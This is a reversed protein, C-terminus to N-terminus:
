GEEKPRSVDVKPLGGHQKGPRRAVNAKARCTPSCCTGKPWKPRFPKGCVACPRSPRLSQGPVLDSM